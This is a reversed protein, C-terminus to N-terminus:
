IFYTQFEHKISCEYFKNLNMFLKTNHGIGSSNDTNSTLLIFRVCVCASSCTLSKKLSPFIPFHIEGGGWYKKIFLTSNTKITKSSRCCDSVSLVKHKEVNKKVKDGTIFNEELRTFASM